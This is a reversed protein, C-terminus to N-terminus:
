IGRGPAPVTVGVVRVRRNIEYEITIEVQNEQAEPTINLVTIRPENENLARRVEQRIKAHLLAVNNEFVFAIADAGQGPRMVRELRGTLIIMRISDDILPDDEVSEPFETEGRRFPFAIGRSM